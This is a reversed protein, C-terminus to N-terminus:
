DKLYNKNLHLRVKHMWQDTLTHKKQMHPLTVTRGGIFGSRAAMARSRMREAVM